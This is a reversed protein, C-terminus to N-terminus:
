GLSAPHYPFSTSAAGTTRAEDAVRLLADLLGPVAPRVAILLRSLVTDLATPNVTATPVLEHILEVREPEGLAPDALAAAAFRAALLAALGGDPIRVETGEGLRTQRCRERASRGSGVFVVAVNPAAVFADPHGL